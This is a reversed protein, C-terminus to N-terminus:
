RAIGPIHKLLLEYVAVSGIIGMIGQAISGPINTIFISPSHYIIAEYVMYGLTMVLEAAGAAAIRSVMTKSHRSLAKYVYYSAVAMLAKIVFTAPAYIFYGTIVDAMASGIGGAAAGYLPGLVWASLNVLCDGLNIYGKTPTPIQIMITSVATLAAFLAALTLQRTKKDTMREMKIVGRRAADRQQKIHGRNQTGIANYWM